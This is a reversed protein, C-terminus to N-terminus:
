TIKTKKSKVQPKEPIDDDDESSAELLEDPVDHPVNHKTIFDKLITMSEEKLLVLQESLSGKNAQVSYSETGLRLTAKVQPRPHLADCSDTEMCLCNM